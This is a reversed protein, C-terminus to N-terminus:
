AYLEDMTWKRPSPLTLPNILCVCFSALLWYLREFKLVLKQIGSILQVDLFRKVLRTLPGDLDVGAGKFSLAFVVRNADGEVATEYVDDFVSLLSSVVGHYATAGNPVVNMALLGGEHLVARAATLFKHELFSSPPSSLGCRPDGEDVDVIIAHVRHIDFCHKSESVSCINVPSSSPAAASQTSCPQALVDEGEAASTNTSNRCEPSSDTLKESTSSSPNLTANEARVTTALKDVFQLADGATIEMDIGNELGFHRRAADLVVEDADVAQVCM